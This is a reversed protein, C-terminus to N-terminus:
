PTGTSTDRCSPFDRICVCSAGAVQGQEAASQGDYQGGNLTNLMTLAARYILFIFLKKLSASFILNEVWGGHM